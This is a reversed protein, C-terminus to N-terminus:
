ALVVASRFSKLVAVSWLPQTTVSQMPPIVPPNIILSKKLIVNKKIEDIMMEHLLYMM